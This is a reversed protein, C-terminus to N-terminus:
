MVHFRNSLCTSYSFTTLVKQYEMLAKYYKSFVVADSINEKKVYDEFKGLRIKADNLDNQKLHCMVIDMELCFKGEEGLWGSKELIDQYLTIEM